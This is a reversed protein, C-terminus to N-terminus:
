ALARATGLFRAVSNVLDLLQSNQDAQRLWAFATRVNDQELELTSMWQVDDSQADAAAAGLGLVYGAHRQRGEEAEGAEELREAAYERITELMWYREDTFRLLSKEVLSLLPDLDADCVDEAAELTCGGAFVSLSRFIRQEEDSLLDYSWEVTARLTQQRPDADRGGKLLDLRQSLRELIQSVSLTKTRASALEVALPLNDLRACLQAIADSPELQARACFLDVAEPQALPPVPYEVEGQVRLLERSTVLLSLNPCVGLLSALEPAAEVVQELNDLLLLLRKDAMHEALEGKAELTQSISEIVLAPDRLSALGVWYVGDPFAPAAEEAARLALRTKGTGGPGTLTLLRVDEDLLHELVQQLERERGLFSSAPRPLSVTAPASPVARRPLPADSTVARALEDASAFREDPDKALAREVIGDFSEGLSPRIVSPLPAPENLHAWLVAAEHERPFPREGTLCEYLLCGLAYLDTRQDVPDGRIQEPAAYLVSGVFGGAKTLETAGQARRALGFDCLYAHERTGARSLLVNAPKLDRHVLGAAHAAALAEAIQTVISLARPPELAGERALLQALSEGEVFRMALYLVGDAEGAEYVPLVHPHDLSAAVRAERLFRSRFEEEGALDPAVVKLAVQRSLSLQTAQYVVGMGGRALQSEIRFGSLLSGSALESPVPSPDRVSPTGGLAKRSTM